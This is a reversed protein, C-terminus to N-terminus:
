FIEMQSAGIIDIDKVAAATAFFMDLDDSTAELEMKVPLTFLSETKNDSGLRLIGCPIVERGYHARHHRVATNVGQRILLVAALLNRLWPLFSNANQDVYLDRHKISVRFGILIKVEVPFFVYLQVGTNYFVTM